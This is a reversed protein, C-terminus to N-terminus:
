LRGEDRYSYFRKDYSCTNGVIVHDVFAIRMFDCAKKVSDTVNDDAKSPRVNGSPHNHVLAIVTSSNVIAERIIMRVDMATETLGGSSLRVPKILRFSHNLLLVWAEEHDIGGVIPKMYNYIEESADLKPKVGVREQEIRRVLEQLAKVKYATARGVGEMTELAKIPLELLERISYNETNRLMADTISNEGRGLALSLVEAKSLTSWGNKEAKATPLEEALFSNACM